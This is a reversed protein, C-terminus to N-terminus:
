GECARKAKRTRSRCLIYGNCISGSWCFSSCRSRCITWSIMSGPLVPVSFCQTSLTAPTKPFSFLPFAWIRHAYGVEFPRALITTMWWLSSSRANELSDISTQMAERSFKLKAEVSGEIDPSYDFPDILTILKGHKTNQLQEKLKPIVQNKFERQEDTFCPHAICVWM